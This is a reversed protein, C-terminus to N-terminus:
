VKRKNVVKRKKEFTVLTPEGEQVLIIINGYPIPFTLDQIQEMFADERLYVDNQNPSEKKEAM